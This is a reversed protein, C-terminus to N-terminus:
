LLSHEDYFITSLAFYHLFLHFWVGVSLLTMGKWEQDSDEVVILSDLVAGM